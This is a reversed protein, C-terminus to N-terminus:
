GLLRLRPEVGPWIAAITVPAGGLRLIEGVSPVEPLTLRGTSVIVGDRVLEYSCVVSGQGQV